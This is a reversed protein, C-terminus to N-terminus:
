TWILAYLFIILSALSLISRVAHLRGWRNLLQKAYESSKDLSTDLLKNNTPLIAIVTFPIVVVILIGGILWYINSHMFWAILSSLFSIAALLVQMVTARKYSQAFETVALVTGCSMRAPHEVLNIYIAAGCFIGASLTAIFELTLNM